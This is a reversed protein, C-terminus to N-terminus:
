ERPKARLNRAERLMGALAVAKSKRVYNAPHARPTATAEDSVASHLLEVKRILASDQALMISLVNSIAGIEGALMDEIPTPEM